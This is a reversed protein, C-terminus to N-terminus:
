QVLPAAYVFVHLGRVSGSQGSVRGRHPQVVLQMEGASGSSSSGSTSAQLLPAQGALYAQRHQRQQWRISVLGVAELVRVAQKAHVVPLLVAGSTSSLLADELVDAFNISCGTVRLPTVVAAGPLV